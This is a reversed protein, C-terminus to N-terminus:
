EVIAPNDEVKIKYQGSKRENRRKVPEFLAKFIDNSKGQRQLKSM